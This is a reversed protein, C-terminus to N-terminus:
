LYNLILNLKRYRLQKQRMAKNLNSNKQWNSEVPRIKRVNLSKLM